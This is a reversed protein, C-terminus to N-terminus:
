FARGLEVLQEPAARRREGRQALHGRRVRRQAVSRPRRAQPRRTAHPAYDKPADWALPFGEARAEAQAKDLDDVMWALLFVGEGHKALHQRMRENDEAPEDTPTFIGVAHCAYEGPPLGIHAAKAKGQPNYEPKMPIAKAGLMKEWAAVATDFNEPYVVIDVTKLFLISKM